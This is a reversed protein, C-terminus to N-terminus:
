GDFSARSLSLVAPVLVAVLCRFNVLEISFSGFVCGLYFVCLANVM